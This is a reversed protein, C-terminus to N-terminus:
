TLGKLPAPNAIQCSGSGRVQRWRSAARAISSLDRNLRRAVDTLSACGAAVARAAIEGRLESLLHGKGPATLAQEPVGSRRCVDTVIKDLTWAPQASRVISSEPAARKGTLAHRAESMLGPDRLAEGCFRAFAKRAEGPDSDLAGLVLQPHVWPAVRAGLYHNHSSWPYAGPEAVLGARVPNFHVYRVLQLLQHEGTVLVSHYRREFLHGTTGVQRQLYRAYGSGIPQMLRGLPQENVKVVMHIHNTMWCYAVVRAGARESAGRVIADLVSRDAADRFISQRHNGRLTVHYYGEPVHLRRRRSM